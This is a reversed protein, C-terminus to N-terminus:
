LRARTPNFRRGVPRVRRERCCTRRGGGVVAELAPMGLVFDGCIVNLVENV